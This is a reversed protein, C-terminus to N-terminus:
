IEAFFLLAPSIWADRSVRLDLVRPLCRSNETNGAHRTKTSVRPEHYGGECVRKPNMVREEGVPPPVRSSDRLSDAPSALSTLCITSGNRLVNCTDYM